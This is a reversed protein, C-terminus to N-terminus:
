CPSPRVQTDKGTSYECSTLVAKWDWDVSLIVFNEYLGKRFWKLNEVKKREKKEGQLQVNKRECASDWSQGFWDVKKSCSKNMEKCAPSRRQWVRAKRRLLQDWVRGKLIRQYWTVMWKWLYDESVRIHNTDHSNVHLYVCVFVCPIQLFIYPRKLFVM